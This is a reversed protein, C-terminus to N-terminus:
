RRELLYFRCSHENKKSKACAGVPIERWVKSDIQPFRVDGEVRAEVRTFFIRSAAGLTQRYIDAGGIVCIESAGAEHALSSAIAIAEDVGGARLVGDCSWEKNRTLVINARGPLPRGISDFTRRGMIIPKGLTVQKFWRLDDSIRWPLEGDGGIVGNEAVAVVLALGTM